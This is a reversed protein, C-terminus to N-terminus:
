LPVTRERERAMARMFIKMWIFSSAVLMLWIFLCHSRPLFPISTKKEGGEACRINITAMLWHVRIFSLFKKHQLHHWWIFYKLFIFLWHFMKPALTSCRRAAGFPMHWPFGADNVAEYALWLCGVATLGCRSGWVWRWVRRHSRGQHWLATQSSMRPWAMWPRMLILWSIGCCGTCYM